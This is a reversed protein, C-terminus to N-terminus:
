PSTTSQNGSLQCGRAPGRGPLRLARSVLADLNNRGRRRGYVHHAYMLCYGLREEDTTAAVNALHLREEVPDPPCNFIDRLLKLSEEANPGGTARVERLLIHRMPCCVWAHRGDDLNVVYMDYHPYVTHCSMCCCVDFHQFDVCTLYQDETLRRELEELIVSSDSQGRQLLDDVAPHGQEETLATPSELETVATRQHDLLIQTIIHERKM